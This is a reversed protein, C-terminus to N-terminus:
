DTCSCPFSKYNASAFLEGTATDLIQQISTGNRFTAGTSEEKQIAWAIREPYRKYQEAVVQSSKFFCMDCNSEAPWLVEPRSRWYSLVENHDVGAEIMPFFPIRWEHHVLSNARRRPISGDKNKILGYSPRRHVHMKCDQMNVARYAEDARYGINMFCMGNPESLVHLFVHWYIAVYKLQETCWRQSQNPIAKKAKILRDFTLPKPHWGDESSFSAKDQSEYACVWKIEKGTEQELWLMNKLTQDVERSAIFGPIRNQCERFLGKDQPAAEVQETLVVAFLNVDAPYHIAMYSSSRGGSLSAVTQIKPDYLSQM